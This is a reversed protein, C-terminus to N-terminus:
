IMLAYLISADEDFGPIGGCMEEVEELELHRGDPTRFKGSVVIGSENITYSSPFGQSERIVWHKHPPSSPIATMECVTIAGDTITYTTMTPGNQFQFEHESKVENEPDFEDEVLRAQYRSLGSSLPTPSEFDISDSTVRLLHDCSANHTERTSLMHTGRTNFLPEIKAFGEGLLDKLWPHPKIKPTLDVEDGFHERLAMIHRTTLVDPLCGLIGEIVDHPIVESQRYYTKGDIPLVAYCGSKLIEVDDRYTISFGGFVNGVSTIHYFDTEAIKGTIGYRGGSTQIVIGDGSLQFHRTPHYKWGTYDGGVEEGTELSVFTSPPNTLCEWVADRYREPIFYTWM